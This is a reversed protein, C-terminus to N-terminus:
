DPQGPCREARSLGVMKGQPRGLPLQRGLLARALQQCRSPHEPHLAHKGADQCQHVFGQGGGHHGLFQARQQQGPRGRRRHASQRRRPNREARQATRARHDAAHRRRCLAPLIKGTGARADPRVSGVGTRSGAQKKAKRAEYQPEFVGKELRLNDATVTLDRAATVAAGTLEIDGKGALVADGGSVAERLRLKGDATIVMQDASQVTGELNVGVGKETAILTIRNAYMGGLASSDIGVEPKEEAAPNGPDAPAPSPDALPTVTGDAAVSNKGTVVALSSARVQAEVHATRALLTFADTNDANIGAGEIRIDGQRVEYGRLAGGPDVEPKGTTITARPVNIFGGGNVTVGNPNALIVDAARGNVEIYGEIRSRNASTVENLITRAEAGRNGHFNPNGAVIGGLQSNAAGSSNNLILGQQHVNFDHYQNHSLGSGNAATINVVPVGNPATEMSPRKNAAANPDPTVGAARVNAGLVPLLILQATLVACLLVNRAEGKRKM